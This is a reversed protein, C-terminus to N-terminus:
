INASSPPTVEAQQGQAHPTGVDQGVQGQEPSMQEMRVIASQPLTSALKKFTGQDQLKQVLWNVADYPIRARRTREPNKPDSIFFDIGVLAGSDPIFGSENRLAAEKKQQVVHMHADIYAQYHQQIEPSLLSFDSQAMRASARQVLYENNSQPRIAPIEGRDLALIDNTATEDDLTMDRFADGSNAYPMDGILKGITKADLQSGVYQLVNTLVLQRGLKTEVDDAQPEVVIDLSQDRTDKFEPINIAESRGVAAVFTNEDYYLKCMRQHIQCVAKLFLEFRMIYRSFKRKQSAARYLLTHPELNAPIDEEDLDAMDYMGKIESQLYELYQSGNRGPLVVPAQMANVSVGRIGPAQGGASMKAGNTMILKDDGLTIQHEAIKSACRNIEAQFPKLPEIVSIGRAKTQISELRECVVPFIGDPLEGEDLIMNQVHIYYYGKPYDPCPKIYWEKVLVEDEAGKRYGAGIDFVLFPVENTANIKDQKDPFMQKLRGIPVPKRICYYPSEKVSQAAPDRLVNFGFIEEFKVQGQYKPKDQDGVPQGVSDFMPNGDPDVAQEHGIIEGAYKDWYVKTWVEGIGVLDDAWQMVWSQYNNVEKGHQWIAQNLEAAKIDALEKDHKPRITVGPASTVITNSYRRVIRGIHNKTLRIKVNEELDRTTRVRDYFRASKKNYHEGAVLLLGTRMKAFDMRDAEESKAYLSDLDAANEIKKM